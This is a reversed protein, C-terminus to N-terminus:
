KEEKVAKYKRMQSKTNRIEKLLKSRQEQTEKLQKNIKALKKELKNM